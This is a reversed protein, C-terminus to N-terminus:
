FLRTQKIGGTYAKMNCRIHALQVNIRSHEGGKSLPIIHDLSASLPHPYQLTKNVKKHCLQCVWGDREFIEGVLFKEITVQKKRARKEAGASRVRDPNDKRWQICNGQKKGPHTDRYDIAYKKFKEVHERYYLFNYAKVRESNNKKSRHDNQKNREPNAARWKRMAERYYERNALNWELNTIRRTEKRKEEARTTEVDVENM